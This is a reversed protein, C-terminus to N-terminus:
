GYGNETTTLVTCDGEVIILSIVKQDTSLKIGRVGRATRGTPRVHTEKFRVAKGSDSFLMIDYSGDTLEVDILQNDDRLEIARIGSPRPRSFDSLSCKKVTGDATAM